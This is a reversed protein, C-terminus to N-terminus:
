VAKWMVDALCHPVASSFGWGARKAADVGGRRAAIVAWLFIFPVRDCTSLQEPITFVGVVTARGLRRCNHSGSFCRVPRLRCCKFARLLRRVPGFEIMTCTRWSKCSGSYSQGGNESCRVRPRYHCPGVGLAVPRVALRLTQGTTRESRSVGDLCRNGSHAVPAAEPSRRAHARGRVILVLCNWLIKWESPPYKRAHTKHPWRVPAYRAGNHKM